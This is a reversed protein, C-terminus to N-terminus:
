ADEVSEWAKQHNTGFLTGDCDCKSCPSISRSASLTSRYKNMAPSLWINLLTNTYVADVPYRGEQSVSSATLSELQQRVNGFRVLKNWDQVCLLVDGNWDITMSYHPYYCPKSKFSKDTTVGMVGARNTLVVGFGEEESYWRDRLTYFSPDIDAESFLREFKEVQQPGDYMSVVLQSCGSERISRAKERTLYDGNTVVETNHRSLTRVIDELRPHLLPEGYGCINVIGEFGIDTLQGSIIEATSVDMFLKQNPYVADDHRPCFVCKRNCLETINIDIFSPLPVGDLLTVKNVLAKKREINNATAANVSRKM